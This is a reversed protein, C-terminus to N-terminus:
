ASKGLFFKRDDRTFKKHLMQDGGLNRIAYATSTFFGWDNKMENSEAPPMM